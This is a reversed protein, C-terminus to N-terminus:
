FVVFKSHCCNHILFLRHFICKDMSLWILFLYFCIKNRVDMRCNYCITLRREATYFWSIYYFTCKLGMCWVMCFYAFNSISSSTVGITNWSYILYHMENRCSRDKYKILQLLYLYAASSFTGLSCILRIYLIALILWNSAYKQWNSIAYLWWLRDWRCNFNFQDLNNAWWFNKFNAYLFNRNPISIRAWSNLNVM